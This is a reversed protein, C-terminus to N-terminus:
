WYMRDHPHIKDKLCIPVSDMIKLCQWTGEAACSSYTLQERCKISCEHSQQHNRHLHQMAQVVACCAHQEKPAIFPGAAAEHLIHCVVFHLLLVLYM